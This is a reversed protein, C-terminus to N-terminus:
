RVIWPTTVPGSTAVLHLRLSGPQLTGQFRGLEDVRLTAREVRDGPPAFEVVVQAPGPPDLQGILIPQDAPLDIEIIMGSAAMEVYRDHTDADRLGVLPPGVASDAVLEALEGELHGLDFAAVAADRAAAPIPDAAELAAALHALLNDDPQLDPSTM